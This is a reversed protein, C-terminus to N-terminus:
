RNDGDGIITGREKRGALKDLNMQAITELDVGLVSCVGTLQWLVDGLENYLEDEEVTSKMEIHNCDIMIQELRIGKAIKSSFEGVEGVLNLTMYSFNESSLTCTQMAKQQYENLTM